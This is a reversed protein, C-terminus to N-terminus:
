ELENSVFLEPDMVLEGAEVKGTRTFLSTTGDGDLDGEASVEFGNPGPDPGGRSPGKYPGGHRYELQYRLDEDVTFRLCAWGAESSGSSFDNTGTNRPRYVKGRVKTLDDPVPVSSRCLQNPVIGLARPVVDEARNFEWAQAAARAMRGVSDRGQQALRRAVQPALGPASVERSAVGPVAGVPATVVAPADACSSVLLAAALSRLVLAPGPAM